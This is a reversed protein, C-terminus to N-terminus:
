SAGPTTKPPLAFTPAGTVTVFKPVSTVTATVGIRGDSLIAILYSQEEVGNYVPNM